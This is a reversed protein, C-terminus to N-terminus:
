RCQRVMHSDLYQGHGAYSSINAGMPGSGTHPAAGPMLSSAGMAGVPLGMPVPNEAHKQLVNIADDLREEMRSQQLLVSLSTYQVILRM